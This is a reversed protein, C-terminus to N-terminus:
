DIFTDEIILSKREGGEKHEEFGLKTTSIIFGGKDGM